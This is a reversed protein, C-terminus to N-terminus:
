RGRFRALSSDVDEGNITAQPWKEYRGYPPTVVAAKQGTDAPLASWGVVGALAAYLERRSERKSLIAARTCSLDPLSM